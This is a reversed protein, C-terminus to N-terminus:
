RGDRVDHGEKDNCTSIIGFNGSSIDTPFFNKLQEINFFLFLLSLMTIVPVLRPNTKKKMINDGNRRVNRMALKHWTRASVFRVDGKEEFYFLFVARVLSLTTGVKRRNTDFLQFLETGKKNIGKHPIIWKCAFFYLRYLYIHNPHWFNVRLCYCFHALLSFVKFTGSGKSVGIMYIIRKM